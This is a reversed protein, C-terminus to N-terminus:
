KEGLKIPKFVFRGSAFADVVDKDTILSLDEGMKSLVERMASLLKDGELSHIAGGYGFNDFSARKGRANIFEVACGVNSVKVKRKSLMTPIAGWLEDVPSLSFYRRIDQGVPRELLSSKRRYLSVPMNRRANLPIGAMPYRRALQEFTRADIKKEGLGFVYMKGSSFRGSSFVADIFRARAADSGVQLMFRWVTRRSGKDCREDDSLAEAPAARRGAFEGIFRKEFEMRESQRTEVERKPSPAGNLSFVFAALAILIFLRRM